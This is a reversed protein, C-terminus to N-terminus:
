TTWRENPDSENAALIGSQHHMGGCFVTRRDSSAVKKPSNIKRSHWKCISHVHFVSAACLLKAHKERRRRRKGKKQKMRREETLQRVICKLCEISNVWLWWKSTDSERARAVMQHRCVHKLCLRFISSNQRRRNKVKRKKNRMEEAAGLWRM